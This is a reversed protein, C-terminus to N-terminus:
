RVQQLDHLGQEVQQQWRARDAAVVAPPESPDGMWAQVAQQAKTFTARAAPIGVGRAQAQGLTILNPPYGPERQVARQAASVAADVDGPGLPWPPARLLVVASLRAPGAHDLGPDQAEAKTLSALMDKLQSPAELPRARASLGQVQAQAYQCSGSDPAQALCQRASATAAALLRTREASDTSQDIGDADRQVVALLQAPSQTGVAAPGGAPAQVTRTAACSALALATLVAAGRVTANM